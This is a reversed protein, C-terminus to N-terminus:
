SIAARATEGNNSTTSLDYSCMATTSRPAFTWV